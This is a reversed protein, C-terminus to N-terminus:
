FLKDWRITNGTLLHAVGYRLADAGHSYEHEPKDTPKGDKDTAWVYSTIENFFEQCDIDVLIKYAQIQQIGHRVSDAGKPAAVANIGYKNLEAISKPEAADCAVRERKIGVRKLEEAIDDNTIGRRYFSRTVYIIKEKQNVFGGVYATPDTYGFDLGHFAINERDRLLESQNLEAQEVRDYIRGESIGWDGLGEVRYRKPHNVKMDEFIRRDADDLWENCRYDTTLALINDSSNDFFRAKGWWTDSWPNLTLIVQKYLGEPVQGRISMDLKNFEDESQIQYAEEIWVFCLVGNTVSISTIKQADDLGRFLIKQGTEHKTIELPSLTATFQNEVGLRHIAWLLDAYCSNRLTREFRRVILANAQPHELLACIIRLATTKSKKSARGGKVCIYRGKYNWFKAYGGGVIESLKVSPM